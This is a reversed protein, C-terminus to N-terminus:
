LAMVESPYLLRWSPSSTSNSIVSPAFPGCAALTLLLEQVYAKKVSWPCPRIQSKGRSFLFHRYDEPRPLNRSGSVKHPGYYGRRAYVRLRRGAKQAHIDITRYEGNRSLWTPKYSIRYRSRIVQQLQELSHNLRSLSGPFFAAGGTREALAKLARDGLRTTTVQRSHERTSVTYVIVESGQAAEISEKLTAASSNDDGDAVSQQEPLNALKQAAFRVADWLRLEEPPRL